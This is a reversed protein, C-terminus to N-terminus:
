LTTGTLTDCLEMQRWASRSFPLALQYAPLTNLPHLEGMLDSTTLGRIPLRIKKRADAPLCVIERTQPDFTIEM